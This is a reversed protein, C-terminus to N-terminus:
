ILAWNENDQFVRDEIQLKLLHALVNREAAMKLWPDQKAYLATAIEAVTAPNKSILALIASERAFRHAVLEKVLERPESLVPGHGPLYIQEDRDLLRRLNAYYKKMDGDPPSVISSSWSMVHDGSFLIRVSGAQYAFCLHDSAHGPTHLAMLGAVEDGEALGHDPTFHPAAPHHFAYVPADTTNKLAVTAGFHDRHTHTLVIRCIPKSDAADLIDRVHVPDDPGPDLVTLGDQAEILYTNTGFYTMVSPNRAVIRSIGPICTLAVGRPPEAETLFPM